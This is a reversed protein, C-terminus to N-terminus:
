LRAKKMQYQGTLYVADSDPLLGTATAVGRNRDELSVPHELTGMTGMVGERHAIEVYQKHIANFEDMNWNTVQFPKPQYGNLFEIKLQDQYSNAKKVDEPDKPDIQTRVNVVFYDSTKDAPIIYKGAGNFVKYTVHDSNWVHLSQYRGDTEPLTIVVDGGGDVISFSYLTDRNMMPAPQKDLAIINRHHHWSTNSAGLAFERQMALDSMAYAYNDETVSVSKVEESTTAGCASLFTILGIVGITKINRTTLHSAIM